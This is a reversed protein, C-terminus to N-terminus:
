RCLMECHMKGTALVYWGGGCGAYLNCLSFYGRVAMEPISLVVDAHGCAGVVACLWGIPSLM